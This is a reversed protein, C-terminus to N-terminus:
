ALVALLAPLAAMAIGAGLVMLHNLPPDCARDQDPADAPAEPPLPLPVACSPNLSAILMWHFDDPAKM